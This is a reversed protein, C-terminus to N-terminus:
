IVFSVPVFLAAPTLDKIKSELFEFDFVQGRFPMQGM